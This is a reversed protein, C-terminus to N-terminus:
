CLKFRRVGFGEPLLPEERLTYSPCDQHSVDEGESEVAELFAVARFPEEYLGEGEIRALSKPHRFRWLSPNGGRLNSSAPFDPLPEVRKMLKRLLSCTTPPISRKTPIHKQRQQHTSMIPASVQHSSLRKPISTLMTTGHPKLPQESYRTSAKTANSMRGTRKSLNYLFPSNRM